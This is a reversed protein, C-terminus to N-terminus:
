RVEATLRHGRRELGFVAGRRRLYDRGRAFPEVTALVRVADEGFTPHNM